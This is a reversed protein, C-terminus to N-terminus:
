KAWKEAEDTPEVSRRLNSHQWDMPGVSTIEFAPDHEANNM